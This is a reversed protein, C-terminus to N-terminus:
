FIQLVYNDEHEILFNQIEQISEAYIEGTEMDILCRENKEFIMGLKLM